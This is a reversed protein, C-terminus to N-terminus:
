AKKEHTDALPALFPLNKTGTGSGTALIIEISEAVESEKLIKM